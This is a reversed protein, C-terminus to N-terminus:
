SAKSFCGKIKARVLGQVACSIAAAKRSSTSGGVTRSPHGVRM